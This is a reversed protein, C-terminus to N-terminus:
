KTKKLAALQAELQEIKLALERAREEASKTHVTEKDDNFERMRLLSRCYYDTWLHLSHPAIDNLNLTGNTAKYLPNRYLDIVSPSMIYTWLSVTKDVVERREKEFDYLFTGFRCNYVEESVTSLFYANYEMACPYMHCLQWVCDLFQLFVPSRQSDSDQEMKGDAHGNRRAFQHGFALWEKEILEALGRITRFRPNLMIMALSSLQATRDWGDSCHLVVSNSDLAVYRAVKVAASLIKHIHGLWGSSAVLGHYQAHDVSGFVSCSLAENLKILSQRMVHINDINAFELTCDFAYHVVKESGKGMAQNAIANLKPRADILHLTRSGKATNADFIAQLLLQDALSTGGTIGVKICHIISTISRMSM